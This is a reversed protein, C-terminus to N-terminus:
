GSFIFQGAVQGIRVKVSAQYVPAKIYVFALGAAVCVALTLLIWQKRRVLIQWLELLSIEDTSSLTQTAPTSIM